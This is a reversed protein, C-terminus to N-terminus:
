EAWSLIVYKNENADLLCPSRPLYLFSVAACVVTEQSALASEMLGAMVSVIKGM